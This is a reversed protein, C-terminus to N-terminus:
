LRHLRDIWRNLKDMMRVLIPNRDRTLFENIINACEPTRLYGFDKHSNKVGNMEYNNYVVLDTVKIHRSNPQFEDALEYNFAVKDNLDSLNYWSRRVNEPTALQGPRGKRQKLETITKNVIAPIGLPSGITVLTDITVDPATQTLVDYSLISGMSHGILLIEKNKHKRLVSALHERLVHKVPRTERNKDQCTGSYYQDLDTFFHKIIYDSIGSFNISLDENLFVKELEKELYNLIKRKLDSPKKMVTDRAPQYPEKLYLPHEKDKISVDLPQDHLFDAWYVFEFTFFQIPYGISKLGERISKEWWKKMIRQPPKKGLGHIGIIIKAM